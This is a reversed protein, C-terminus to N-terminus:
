PTSHGPTPPSYGSAAVTVESDVEARCLPLRIAATNLICPTPDRKDTKTTRIHKPHPADAPKAQLNESANPLLSSNNIVSSENLM